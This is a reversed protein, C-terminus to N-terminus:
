CTKEDASEKYISMYGNKSELVSGGSERNYNTFGPSKKGIPSDNGFYRKATSETLVITGPRALATKPDGLLFPFTFVEFVTSDVFYFNSENFKVVENKNNTYDFFWKPRLGNFFLVTKEVLEPYATELTSAWPSHVPQRTKMPMIPMIFDTLGTFETPRKTFGTM